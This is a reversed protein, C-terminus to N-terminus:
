TPQTPASSARRTWRWTSAPSRSISRCTIVKSAGAGPTLPTPTGYITLHYREPDRMLGFTEIERLVLELEIINVVKAYGAASLAQRSCRM